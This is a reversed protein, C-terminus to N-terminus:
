AEKNFHKPNPNNFKLINVAFVALPTEALDISNYKTTNTQLNSEIRLCWPRREGKMLIRFKILIDGM